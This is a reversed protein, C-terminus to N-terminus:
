IEAKFYNMFASDPVARLSYYDGLYTYAKAMHISDYSNKSRELILKSVEEYSPWDSMNYYRNAVKFLNVKNVM